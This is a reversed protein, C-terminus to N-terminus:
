NCKCNYQGGLDQETLEKRPGLYKGFFRINFLFLYYINIKRIHANFVNEKFLNHYKRGYTSSQLDPM